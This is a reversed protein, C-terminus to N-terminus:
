LSMSVAMTVSAVIVSMSVWPEGQVTLREAAAKRDVRVTGHSGRVQGLKPLCPSICLLRTGLCLLLLIWFDLNM